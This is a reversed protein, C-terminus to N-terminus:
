DSSYEFSEGESSLIIKYKDATGTINFKMEVNNDGAVTVEAKGDAFDETIDEHIDASKWSLFVRNSEQVVVPKNEATQIEINSNGDIAYQGDYEIGGKLGNGYDIILEQSDLNGSKDYKNILKADYNNGNVTATILHEIWMAGTTAYVVANSAILMIMITAAVYIVKRIVYVKKKTKNNSMNQVKKILEDSAHVEDFVSQYFEHNSKYQNM